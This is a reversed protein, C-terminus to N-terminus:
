QRRILRALPLWVHAFIVVEPGIEGHCHSAIASCAYIKSFSKLSGSLHECRNCEGLKVWSPYFAVFKSDAIKLHHVDYLYWLMSFRTVTM